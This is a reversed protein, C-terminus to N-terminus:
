LLASNSFCRQSSSAAPPHPFFFTEKRLLFRSTPTLDFFFFFFSRWCLKEVICRKEEGFGGRRREGDEIDAERAIEDVLPASADEDQLGLLLLMLPPMLPAPLVEFRATAAM